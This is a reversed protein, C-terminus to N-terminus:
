SYSRSFDMIYKFGSSGKSSLTNELAEKYREFHVFKHVPARLRTECMMNILESLMKEKDLESARSYWATMWFGVFKLNKFIFASTPITVPRKSMGGYTVMIGSPAMHKILGVTKKGGVCNLGLVPRKIIKNAFINTCKLEEETLVWTAGLCCLYHKIKEIDPRDRVINVTQIGWANCLQIVNQGVSGNAGNQIVVLDKQKRVPKYDSLMRYATCPNVTLTASEALGLHQPVTRLLSKDFVGYNRWTGQGPKAVIVKDGVAMRTVGEGVKEVIGVGENGGITPLSPKIAYRGLFLYFYITLM